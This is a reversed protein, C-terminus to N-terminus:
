VKESDEQSQCLGGGGGSEGERGGGGQMNQHQTKPISMFLGAFNPCYPVQRFLSGESFHLQPQSDYLFASSPRAKLHDSIIRLWVKCGRPQFKGESVCECRSFPTCPLLTVSLNDYIKWTYIKGQETNTLFSHM